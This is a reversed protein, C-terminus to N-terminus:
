LSVEQLLTEAKELCSHVTQRKEDATEDDRSGYERRAITVLPKLSMRVRGKAQKVAEDGRIAAFRLRESALEVASSLVSSCSEPDKSWN